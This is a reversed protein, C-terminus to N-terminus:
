GIDALALREGWKTMLHECLPPHRKLDTDHELWHFAERRAIELIKYDRILNAVRLEPLGSQRTGLFDGPGRIKLDEEAIRFGDQTECMVQLRRFGPNSKPLSTVLLCLSPKDGRGVRGRLQHLQSLGFREAHEIVMLIAEPVDIGVEIVTTSVLLRIEGSKFSRMISEKQEPPTRGHLLAVSLDPFIKSLEESMQTADRLTLKESEEILPYVVYGQEGRRLVEGMLNYLLRRSKEELVETRIKQRGPPLEDIVSLDLDGYITMALTRPIPTATMVLIHPSSLGKEKLAARQLVGFRHQEDIIALGLSKFELGESILAHTGVVLPFMGKAIRAYTRRREGADLGGTLFAVPVKFPALLRRATQHHQEALIETPAMMAVQYGKEIAAMAALLAVVTKGSGVDGQLLRNMPHPGRLDKLIEALVRVQAATLRFPLKEGWAGSREEATDIGIGRERTM